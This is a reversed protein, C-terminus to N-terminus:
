NQEAEADSIGYKDSSHYYESLGPISGLLRFLKGFPKPQKRSGVQLREIHSRLYNRQWM